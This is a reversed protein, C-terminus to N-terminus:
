LAAPMSHAHHPAIRMGIAALLSQPIESDFPKTVCEVDLDRTPL